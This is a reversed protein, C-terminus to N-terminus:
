CTLLCCQDGTLVDHRMWDYITYGVMIAAGLWLIAFLCFIIGLLM